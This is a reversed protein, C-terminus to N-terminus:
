DYARFVLTVTSLFLNEKELAEPDCPMAQEVGICAASSTRITLGADGISEAFAVLPDIVANTAADLEKMATVNVRHDRSELGRSAPESDAGQAAVLVTLDTLDDLEGKTKYVRRATFAYAFSGANLATVVAEALTVSRATM